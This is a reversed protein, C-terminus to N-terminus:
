VSCERGLTATPAATSQDGRSYGEEAAKGGRTEPDCRAGQTIQKNGERRTDSKGSMEPARTAIEKVTRARKHLKKELHRKRKNKSAGPKARTPRGSACAEAPAERLLLELVYEREEGEILLGETNFQEDRPGGEDTEVEDVRVQHVRAETEEDLAAWAKCTDPWSCENEQRVAGVIVGETEELEWARDSEEGM